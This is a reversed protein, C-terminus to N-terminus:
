RAQLWRQETAEAYFAGLTNSLLLIELPLTGVLNNEQINLQTYQGRTDCANGSTASTFWQCEDSATLWGGSSNWRPGATAYYLCALAYRRIVRFGSKIKDNPSSKLWDFAARQPSSTDAIAAATPPFNAVILEYMPDGSFEGDGVNGNGNDAGTCRTCCTCQVECNVELNNLQLDCIEQPM